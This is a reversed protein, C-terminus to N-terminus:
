KISKRHLKRYYSIAFRHAEADIALLFNRDSESLNVLPIPEKKHPIFLQHGKHHDDKSLGILPISIGMDKLVALASNVQGKGGDVIILDPFPWEPHNFRREIIERLMATDNVHYTDNIDRSHMALNIRDYKNLLANNKYKTKNNKSNHKIYKIKFKRYYTKDPIGNIFTVMSGTAHTGQINSIDYGEIRILPKKIKLLKQLGSNQSKIIDSNKIVQANYFVRELQEIKIQLEIAKEFDHNKGATKMQKQLEKVLNNKRGNLIDKIANINRNYQKQINKLESDTIRLEPNKICCFGICRNLHYNLCYNYHKQTCTCYPFINRLYKLTTKLSVGDTFPGLYNTDLIKYRTNHIKSNQMRSVQYKSSSVSDPQHTLFVRPFDDNTFGVYFYQKDDRLMINFPPRKQKVLQSELILAEIDSDTEIHVLYRATSIMTRIRSDLTKTYSTLRKKLSSAKGIYIDQHKVDQFRYIGPSDPAKTILKKLTTTDM